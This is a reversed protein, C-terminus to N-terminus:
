PVNKLEKVANWLRKSLARVEAAKATIEISTLHTAKPLFFDKGEDAYIVSLRRRDTSYGWVGHAFRHRWRMLSIGDKVIALFGDRVKPTPSWHTALAKLTALKPKISMGMFAIRRQKKNTVGLLTSIATMLQHDFLNFRTIFEGTAKYYTKPVDFPFTYKIAM